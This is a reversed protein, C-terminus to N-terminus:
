IEFDVAFKIRKKIGNKPPTIRLHPMLKCENAPVLYTKDLQPCYVGYLDIDPYKRAGGSRLTTTTRFKVVSGNRVLQGTKCQVKLFKGAEDILLDYHCGGGFPLLIKKNQKLLAALVIGETLNGISTTDKVLYIYRTYTVKDLADVSIRVRVSM